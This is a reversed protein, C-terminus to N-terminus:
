NKFEEGYPEPLAELKHTIFSINKDRHEPHNTDCHKYLRAPLMSSNPLVQQVLHM